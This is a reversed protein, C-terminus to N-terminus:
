QNVKTRDAREREATINDLYAILATREEAKDASTLTDFFTKEDVGDDSYSGALILKGNKALVYMGIFSICNTNPGGPYWRMEIWPGYRALMHPRRDAVLKEADDGAKIEGHWLLYAVPLNKTLYNYREYQILTWIGIRLGMFIWVGVLILAIGFLTLLAGKLEPKLRMKLISYPQLSSHAFVNEGM